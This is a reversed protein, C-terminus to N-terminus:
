ALYSNVFQQHLPFCLNSHSDIVEFGSVEANVQFSKILSEAIRFKALCFVLVRNNATIASNILEWDAASSKIGIEEELERAAAGEISELKNVFGGPLALGGINPPIARIIGLLGHTGDEKLVPVACIAVPTPNEYDTDLKSTMDLM